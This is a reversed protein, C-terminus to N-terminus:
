ATVVSMFKVYAAHQPKPPAQFTFCLTVSDADKLDPHSFNATGQLDIRLYQLHPPGQM